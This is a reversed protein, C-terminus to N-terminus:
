VAPFGPLKMAMKVLEALSGAGMKRMMKGRHAKVTIESIGLEFGIQKNLLGSVVLAMVDRERRSLSAYCDKLERIEAEHDLAIRSHEIARCIASLLAEEDLPKTLFDFAGAKIAQVTMAVDGYDAFFIVPTDKWDAGLRKQLHLSNPDLLAFDIVLCSPVLVRERCLFEQTSKFTELQWRANRILLKLSERECVDDDIVFVIPSGQSMVSARAGGRVAVGAEMKTMIRRASCSPMVADIMPLKVDWISWDHEGSGGM